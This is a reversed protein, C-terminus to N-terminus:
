TNENYKSYGVLRELGHPTVKYGFTTQVESESFMHHYKVVGYIVIMTAREGEGEAIVDWVYPGNAPSVIVLSRKFDITIPITIPKTSTTNNTRSLYFPVV